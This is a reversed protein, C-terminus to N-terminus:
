GLGSFEPAATPGTMRAYASPQQSNFKNFMSRKSFSHYLDDHSRLLENRYRKSGPSSTCCESRSRKSLPHDDCGSNRHRKRLISRHPSLALAALASSSCGSSVEPPRVCVRCPFGNFPSSKSQCVFKHYLKVLEEDLKKPSHSVHNSPLSSDFSLHRQLRPRGATAPKLSQLQSPRALHTNQLHHMRLLRQPPSSLSTSVSRPRPSERSFSEVYDKPSRSFAHPSKSLSHMIRMKLPSQRVPSSYIDPRDQFPTDEPAYMSCDTAQEPYGSLSLRKSRLSQDSSTKATPYCPQSPAAAYTCSQEGLHSLESVTFTQNLSVEKPKSTKLQGSLDMAFVQQHQQRRPSDRKREPCPQETQLAQLNTSLQFPSRSVSEIGIFRRKEPSKGGLLMKSSRMKLESSTHKLTVSTNNINSKNAQKQWRHYRRLVSDAAESVNQRHRDREIRSIMSPYLEVFSSGQNRLSRELEQDLDEPQLETESINRKSEDLSSGTLQTMDSKSTEDDDGVYQSTSVGAEDVEDDQGATAPKPSQPQSPRPLHTNQLHCMRLLKQPPSSLSTSVSRPRPSERSFSEVYDKPSRSFAHPSKSLSHMMRKKLPSQRVSSSYIDHRDQFPTDEPAYTSCDTAQEPYGSLSLRKSQLSQDSSTKATQYCPQSPAAAYTCSQEGLHSLESMTFTPCPKSTKLPASLDMAVIHQHQQRRPSSRKREPCPQEAQLAQLNASLQFPSRSASEIGILQRKEPSKGWLLMKSSRKRPKSSTHKLTVSTNNINSKNAQKRWRHYRRLVSDAAESVNQRHWAREIRSIMSPYLEVFSSGQSRLSQELEEDLDEPQLETESINRESELSSGTLQTMDSQSIGDDDGFSQSTSVGSEDVEDDQYTFDLQSNKTLDLASVSEVTSDAQSKPIQKNMKVKACSLYRALTKDEITALDVEMVKDQDQIKSYKDIIRDLAKKYNCSNEHLKKKFFEDM